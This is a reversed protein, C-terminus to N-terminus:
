QRQPVAAIGNQLFAQEAHGVGLAVVAFVDLLVIEIQVGGGRMRIQFHEVFIRLAGERVRIQHGLVAAAARINRLVLEQIRAHEGVVTVEIDEDLVGLSFGAIDQHLDRRPIAAARGRHQM